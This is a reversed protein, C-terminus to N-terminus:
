ATEALLETVAMEALVATGQAGAEEAETILDVLFARLEALETFLLLELTVLLKSTRTVV